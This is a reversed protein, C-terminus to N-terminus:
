FYFFNREELRAVLVPICYVGYSALESDYKQVRLYELVKFISNVTEPLSVLQDVSFGM